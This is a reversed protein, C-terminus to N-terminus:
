GDDMSIHQGLSEFTNTTYVVIPSPTLLSLMVFFNFVANNMYAYGRERRHGRVAEVMKEVAEREVDPSVDGPIEYSAGDLSEPTIIADLVPLDANVILDDSGVILIMDWCDSYTQILDHLSEDSIANQDYILCKVPPTTSYRESSRGGFMEHEFGCLNEIGDLKQLDHKLNQKTIRSKVECLFAIGELPVYTMDSLEFIIRPKSQRFLGVVDIEHEGNGTDFVDFVELEPDIFVPQSVLDYVGSFYGQLIDALEDEYSTGKNSPNHSQHRFRAWEHELQDQIDAALDGRSEHPM